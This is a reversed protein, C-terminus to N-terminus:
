LGGRSSVICSGKKGHNVAEPTILAIVVYTIISGRSPAM